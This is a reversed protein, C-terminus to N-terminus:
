ITLYALEAILRIAYTMGNMIAHCICICECVSLIKIARFLSNVASAYVVCERALRNNMDVGVIVYLARHIIRYMIRHLVIYRNGEKALLLRKWCLSSERVPVSCRNMLTDGWLYYFLVRLTDIGTWSLTAILRLSVM